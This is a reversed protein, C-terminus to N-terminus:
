TTSAAWCASQREAVKQGGASQFAYFVARRGDGMSFGYQPPIFKIM